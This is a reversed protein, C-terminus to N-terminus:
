REYGLVGVYHRIEPERKGRHFMVSVVDGRLRSLSHGNRRCYIQGALLVRRRKRATIAQAPTGFRVSRRAKVEIVVILGQHAALIDAEGGRVSYNRALVQYGKDELHHAALREGLTGIRGPAVRAKLKELLRGLWVSRVGPVARIGSHREFSRSQKNGSQRLATM